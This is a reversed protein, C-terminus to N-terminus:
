LSYINTTKQQNSSQCLNQIISYELNAIQDLSYNQLVFKRANEALTLSLSSKTMLLELSSRIGLPNPDCLLGNVGNNIIERIGPSNAGIVPIGCSMAEILAKPHGEYLSPLVFAFANKLYNPLQSNPVNGEWRIREGLFAFKEQLIPRLKGEGILIFSLPLDVAAQLLSDLNKEPAVRGIFIVQQSPSSAIGPSFIQTDVYNPIVSIKEKVEPMRALLEIQMAPTTVIIKKASSYVVHEISRAYNAQDSDWGFEKAANVSWMYGCRAILPKSFQQAAGLALEGGYLQNTKFVDATELSEAHIACLNEEYTEPAINQYNCLLKIPKIDDAYRLDQTNGYTIFTVSAGKEMFRKYIAVERELMGMMAWTKLSVGRTFFLIVHFSM